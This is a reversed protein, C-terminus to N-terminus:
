PDPAKGDQVPLREVQPLKGQCTQEVWNQLMGSEFYRLLDRGPCTTQGPAAQRHTQLEKLGMSQRLWALLEVTSRLQALSVSQQEFDGWLHVNVVGMLDYDTNSEPRYRLDRGEFVRGDPDILFHYPLDPWNKERQGWTQLAKIKKYADDGEKWLVGSHHLTIRQPEHLLEDSLPAPQSGWQQRPIYQTPQARVAPAMVAVAALALSFFRVLGM